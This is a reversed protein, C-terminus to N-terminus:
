TDTKHDLLWGKWDLEYNKITTTKIFLWKSQINQVIKSPDNDSQKKPLCTQSIDKIEM